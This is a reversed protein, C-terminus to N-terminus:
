VVEFYRKCRDCFVVECKYMRLNEYGCWPCVYSYM